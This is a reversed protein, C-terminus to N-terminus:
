KHGHRRWKRLADNLKITMRHLGRKAESFNAGEFLQTTFGDRVASEVATGSGLAPGTRPRHEGGPAACGSICGDFEQHGRHPLTAALGDAGSLLGQGLQHALRAFHGLGRRASRRPASTRRGDRGWYGARAACPRRTGPRGAVPM